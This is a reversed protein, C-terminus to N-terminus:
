VEWSRKCAEDYALDYLKKPMLRVNLDVKKRSLISLTQQDAFFYPMHLDQQDFHYPTDVM